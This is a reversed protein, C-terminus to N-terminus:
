GTSDLVQEAGTRGIGKRRRMREYNKARDRDIRIHFQSDGVARYYVGSGCPFELESDVPLSPVFFDELAWAITNVAEDLGISVEEALCVAKLAAYEQISYVGELLRYPEM